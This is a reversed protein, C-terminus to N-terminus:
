PIRHRRLLTESLSRLNAYLSGLDSPLFYPCCVIGTRRYSVIAVYVNQIAITSSIVMAVGMAGFRPAALLVGAVTIAGFVLNIRFLMHQHDTMKLLAGHPGTLMNVTQGLALVFLLPAAEAYYSGYVLALLPGGLVAFLLLLAVSALAAMTAVSRITTQLRAHEEPRGYMSSIFPPLVLNIILLPFMLLAVVQLSAGYLAVEDHSDAFGLVWLGSRAILMLLLANLLFPYSRNLLELMPPRVPEVGRDLRRLLRRWAILDNLMLALVWVVIADVLEFDAVFAHVLIAAPLALVARLTRGYLTADRIDHFGRFSAGLLIQHSLLVTWALVLVDLSRSHAIDFAGHLLLEAGGGLLLVGMLVAAVAHLRFSATIMGRVAAGDASASKQAVTRTVAESLGLNVVLALAMVVSNVLFYSGLEAPTLYRSLLSILAIGAVTTLLQLGLAWLGGSALRAGLSKEGGESM